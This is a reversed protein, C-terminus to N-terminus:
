LEHASLICPFNKSNESKKRMKPFICQKEGFIGRNQAHERSFPAHDFPCDGAGENNDTNKSGCGRSM